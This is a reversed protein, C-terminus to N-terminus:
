ESRRGTAIGPKGAAPRYTLNLVGTSFTKSGMLNLPVQGGDDDFLRAGRGVLVPCVMLGLEDLLNQRLLWGVLLPSGAVLVNKGPQTKLKAMYDAVDGRILSSNQWELAKLTASVVLKPANNMFGAPGADGQQPWFAAFEQYTRRGLLLTDSAAMQSGIEAGMEENFYPSQWKEPSEVVGDLSVFLGAVIKRM